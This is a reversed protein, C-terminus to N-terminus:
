QYLLAFSGCSESEGLLVSEDGFIPLLLLLVTELYM